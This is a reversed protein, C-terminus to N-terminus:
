DLEEDESIQSLRFVSRSVTFARPLSLVSSSGELSSSNRGRESDELTERESVKVELTRGDGVM